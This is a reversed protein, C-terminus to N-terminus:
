LIITFFTTSMANRKIENWKIKNQDILLRSRMITFINHCSSSTIVTEYYM